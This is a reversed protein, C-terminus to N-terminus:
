PHGTASDLPQSTSRHHLVAEQPAAGTVPPSQQVSVIAADRSAGKQRSQARKTRAEKFQELVIVMGLWLPVCVMLGIIPSILSFELHPNRSVVFLQLPVIIILYPVAALCAAVRLGHRSKVKSLVFMMPIGLLVGDSLAGLLARLVFGFEDM